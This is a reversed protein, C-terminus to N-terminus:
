LFKFMIHLYYGESPDKKYTPSKSSGPKFGPIKTTDVPKFERATKAKKAPPKGSGSHDTKPAKQVTTSSAIPVFSQGTGKPAPMSTTTGTNGAEMRAMAAQITEGAIIVKSAQQKSLHTAGKPM